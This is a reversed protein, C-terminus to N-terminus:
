NMGKILRNVTEQLIDMKNHMAKLEQKLDNVEKKLAIFDEKAISGYVPLPEGVRYQRKEFNFHYGKLDAFDISFDYGIAYGLLAIKDKSLTPNNLWNYITKRKLNLIRAIEVIEKESETVRQNIIALRDTM